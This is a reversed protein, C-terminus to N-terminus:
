PPAPSLSRVQLFDQNWNSADIRSFDVKSAKLRVVRLHKDTSTDRLHDANRMQSKLYSSEIRIKPPLYMTNEFKDVRINSMKSQNSIYRAEINFAARFKTRNEGESRFNSIRSDAENMTIVINIIYDVSFIIM